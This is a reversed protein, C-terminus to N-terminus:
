LVESKVNEICVVECVEAPNVTWKDRATKGTEKVMLKCEMTGYTHCTKTM